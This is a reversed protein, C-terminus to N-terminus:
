KKPLPLRLLTQPMALLLLPTALLKPPQLLQVPLLTPVLLLLTALPTPLPKVLLWRTLPLLTPVKQLPTLRQLLTKLPLSRVLLLAL